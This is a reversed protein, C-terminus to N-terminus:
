CDFVIMQHGRVEPVVLQACEDTWECELEENEPACYVRLPKKPLRLSLAIDYLPIIDQVVDVASFRREPIYHLIHLVYRNHEPQYNLNMQATSPAAAMVLKKPLLREIANLILQKYAQMGHEHYMTFLPHSVYIAGDHQVVAPYGSPADVPTQRHSSFHQYTRNFYPNWLEALRETGAQPNVDLGADYLVYETDLLGNQLYPGAAVYAPTFPSPGALKIGLEDLVFGTEAPDMGSKFSALVRGGRAMYKAVKAKLKATLTIVDPLILLPYSEFDVHEDVIDFQYDAEILMRYAGSIAPHVRVASDSLAEPTFVAIESVPETDDCWPEKEKVQRFVSGVLDYTATNIAGRPHLQDGVSIKAGNALSLFCEYELAPQDKFGGFDAWSKHFKGTMGLYEQGLLKAFRVTTPFHEYGWGGTPLSELELHTYTDLSDRVAPGVHGANYFITCEANHQRIVDTFRRKFATLVERGFARRDQPNEPDYGSDLMDTMCYRCCCENHSIIDFFLGDVDDGFTQLVEVTQEEVYDLYPTNFCLKRWGAELPGAGRVRGDPTMEVWEPHREAMYEDLGVTIYIPARIGRAHLADIQERLLDRKMHPHRAPFRTDYYIMGHHCRAFVTVSNVGAEAMTDAFHAPDFSDGIGPIQESTHFDLHIQRFPLQGM